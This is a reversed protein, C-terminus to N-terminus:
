LLSAPCVKDYEYETVPLKASAPAMLNRLLRPTAFTLSDMDESSMAYTLGQKCM